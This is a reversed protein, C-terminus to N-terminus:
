VEKQAPRHRTSWGTLAYLPCYGALGTILPIVGLWGWTTRPGIFALAILGIGVLVRIWRDLTGENHWM